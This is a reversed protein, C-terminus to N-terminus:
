SFRCGPRGTSTSYPQVLEDTIAYVSTYSVDGPTEDDANFAAMFRSERRMRWLAPVCGGACFAETGLWGHDLV